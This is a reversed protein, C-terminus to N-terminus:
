ILITLIIKFAYYLIYIMVTLLPVTSLCRDCFNMKTKLSVDSHTQHNNVDGHM